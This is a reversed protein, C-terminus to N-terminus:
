ITQFTNRHPWKSHCVSGSDNENRSDHILSLLIKLNYRLWDFRPNSAQLGIPSRSKFIPRFSVPWGPCCCIPNTLCYLLLNSFNWICICCGNNSDISRIRTCDTVCVNNWSRWCEAIRENRPSIPARRATLGAIIRSCAFRPCANRGFEPVSIQGHLGIVQFTLM